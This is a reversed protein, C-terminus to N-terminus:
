VASEFSLFTTGQLSLSRSSMSIEAEINSATPNAYVFKIKYMTSKTVLVDLLIENQEASFVAYGKGSYNPFSSQNTASRVM